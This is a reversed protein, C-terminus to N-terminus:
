HNQLFLNRNLIKYYDKKYKSVVEKPNLYEERIEPTPYEELYEYLITDKDERFMEIREELTYVTEGVYVQTGPFLISYVKKDM